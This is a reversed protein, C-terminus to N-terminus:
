AAELVNNLKESSVTEDLVDAPSAEVPISRPERGERTIEYRARSVPSMNGLVTEPLDDHKVTLLEPFLCESLFVASLGGDRFDDGLSEGRLADGEGSQLRIEPPLEFKARLDAKQAKASASVADEEKPLDMANDSIMALMLAFSAQDSSNVAHNLSQGLQLEDILATNRIESALM